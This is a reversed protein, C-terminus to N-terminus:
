PPLETDCSRASLCAAPSQLGPAGAAVRHAGPLPMAIACRTRSFYFRVALSHAHLCFDRKKGTRRKGDGDAPGSASRVNCRLHDVPRTVKQHREVGLLPGLRGERELIFLPEVPVEDRPIPLSQGVPLEGRGLAPKRIAQEPGHEAMLPDGLREADHVQLLDEVLAFPAVNPVGVAVVERHEVRGRGRLRPTPADLSVMQREVDRQVAALDHRGRGCEHAAIRRDHLLPVVGAKFDEGRFLRDRPFQQREELSLRPLPDDEVGLRRGVDQRASRPNRLRAIRQSDCM